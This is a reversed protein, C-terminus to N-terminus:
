SLTPIKFSEQLNHIGRRLAHIENGFTPLRCGLDIAKKAFEADPAVCGWVKGYLRCAESVAEIGAWLKEHHYQGVVGLSLSLDSPGVFLMNVAPLAAIQKVEDLAGLTEIQIGVFVQENAQEIFEAPPIGYYDADRGSPNLGRVGTPDFRCWSAFEEAHDASHIQAAMVGGAGAELCQTVQHYGTPPMRVFNPLQNARAAVCLSMLQQTDASAHEQDIWLGRYFDFQGFLELILPHFLRNVAFLPLVQDGELLTHWCTSM